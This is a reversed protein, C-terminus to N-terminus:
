LSYLRCRRIKGSQCRGCLSYLDLANKITGNVRVPLVIFDIEERKVVM